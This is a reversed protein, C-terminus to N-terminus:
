RFEQRLGLLLKRFSANRHSDTESRPRDEDEIPQKM